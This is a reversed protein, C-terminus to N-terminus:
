RYMIYYCAIPCTGSYPALTSFLVRCSFLFYSISIRIPSSLLMFVDERRELGSLYGDSLSLSGTFFTVHIRSSIGHWALKEDCSSKTQNPPPKTWISGWNWSSEMDNIWTNNTKWVRYHCPNQILELWPIEMANALFIIPNGTQSKTENEFWVLSGDFHCSSIGTVNKVPDKDKDSPYKLPSSLLSSTKMNSDLGMRIEIEYKRNEQLTRKEM